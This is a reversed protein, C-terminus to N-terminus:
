FDRLGELISIGEQAPEDQKSTNNQGLVMLGRVNDLANVKSTNNPALHM